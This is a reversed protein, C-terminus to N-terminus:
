TGDNEEEIWGIVREPAIGTIAIIRGVRVGYKYALTVYYGANSVNPGSLMRLFTEAVEQRTRAGM